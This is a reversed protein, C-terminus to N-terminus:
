MQVLDVADNRFQHAAFHDFALLRALLVGGAIVGDVFLVLGRREGFFADELHLFQQPHPVQVIGVVDFEVVVHLLRESRVHEIHPIAFVHHLVAVFTRFHDDHILERPAQHRPPAPGVAQVLRHFGLFAHLDLALVLRQGGDGELIIEAHVLLERPHGARGLRFRGLKLLGVVDVDRHNGVLWGIIRLSFWSTTYRVSSSFNRLAALSILSSWELPCGTSTPVMETSFDSFSDPMRFFIPTRWSTSFALFWSRSALMTACAPRLPVTVTEVLMAPRPVSIRSPPLASNMVLSAQRFSFTASRKDSLSACYM